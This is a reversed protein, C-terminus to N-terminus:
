GAVAQPLHRLKEYASALTAAVEPEDGIRAAIEGQSL